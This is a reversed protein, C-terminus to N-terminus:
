KKWKGRKAARPNNYLGHQDPRPDVWGLWTQIFRWTLWAAFAIVVAAVFLGAVTTVNAATVM